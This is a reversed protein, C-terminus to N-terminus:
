MENRKTGREGVSHVTGSEKWLIASRGCIFVLTNSGTNVVRLVGISKTWMYRM